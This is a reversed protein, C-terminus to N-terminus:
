IIMDSDEKIEKGRQFYKALLMAILVLAVSDLPLSLGFQASYLSAAPLLQLLNVAINSLMIIIVSVACLKSMKGAATISEEGYADQELASILDIASYLVLIQLFAPCHAVLNQLVLFVGSLGRGAPVAAGLEAASEASFSAFASFLESPMTFAIGFVLVAALAGLLLRLYKLLPKTDSVSFKRLARLLAYGILVSHIVGGLVANAFAASNGDPFYSWWPSAGPNIMVYLGYFLLASGVPMLADARTRKGRRRRIIIYITPLLCVCAYLVLAIANGFTGSLSLARLGLAIPYYPFSFLYGVAGFLGGNKGVASLVAAAAFCVVAEITLFVTLKKRM